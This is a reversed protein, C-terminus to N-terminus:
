VENKMPIECQVGDFGPHCIRQNFFCEGHEFTVLSSNSCYCNTSSRSSKAQNLYFFGFSYALLFGILLYIREHRKLRRCLRRIRCCKM